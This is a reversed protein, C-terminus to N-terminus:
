LQRYKRTIKLVNVIYVQILAIWCQFFTGTNMDPNNVHVKIIEQSYIQPIPLTEEGARKKMRSIVEELVLKKPSSQICTHHSPERTMSINARCLSLSTTCPRQRCRWENKDKYQRKITCQYGQYNLVLANRNTTTFELKSNM